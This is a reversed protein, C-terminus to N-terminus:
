KNVLTIEASIKALADIQLLHKTQILAQRLAEQSAKGHCKVVLQKVGLVIAGQDNDIIDSFVLEPYKKHISSFIYGSVAECTKLFLNGSFGNTVFVDAQRSFVDYPEKNGVFDFPLTQSSLLSVASKLEQTGKLVEEGINLTAVKPRNIGYVVSAYAAGLKAHQIISETSAEVNGGVDLMVVDGTDCPIACLLAPRSIAPMPDLEHRTAALMAGTNAASLFGSITGEKLSRIGVFLSSGKKERLAKVPSDQMTVVDSVIQLSSNRIKKQFNDFLPAVETTAFFLLSVDQYFGPDLCSIAELIHSPPVDAGMLDVGIKLVM